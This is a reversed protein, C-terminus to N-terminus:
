LTRKFVTMRDIGFERLKDSKKLNVLFIEYTTKMEAGM